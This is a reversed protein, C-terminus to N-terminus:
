HLILICCCTHCRRITRLSFSSCWLQPPGSTHPYSWTHCSSRKLKHCPLYHNGSTSPRIASLLHSPHTRVLPDFWIHPPKHQLSRESPSSNSTTSCPCLLFLTPISSGVQLPKPCLKCQSRGPSHQLIHFELPSISTTSCTELTRLGCYFFFFFVDDDDDYDDDNDDDDGM